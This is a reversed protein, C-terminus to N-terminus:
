ISIMLMFAMTVGMAIRCGITVEPALLLARAAGVGGAAAGESDARDDTPEGPREAPAGSDATAANVAGATFGPGPEAGVM